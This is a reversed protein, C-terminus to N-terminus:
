GETPQQLQFTSVTLMGGQLQEPNATARRIALLFDRLGALGDALLCKISEGQGGTLQRILNHRNENWADGKGYVQIGLQHIRRRLYGLSGTNTIAADLSFPSGDGGDSSAKPRTKVPTLAPTDGPAKLQLRVTLWRDAGCTPCVTPVKTCLYTRTSILMPKSM